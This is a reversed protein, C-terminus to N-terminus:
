GMTFCKVLLRVEPWAVAEPGKSSLHGETVESLTKKGQSNACKGWGQEGSQEWLEWM